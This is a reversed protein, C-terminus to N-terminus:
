YAEVADADKGPQVLAGSSHDTNFNLKIALNSTVAKNKEKRVAKIIFMRFDFLWSEQNEAVFVRGRALTQHRIYTLDSANQFGSYKEIVLCIILFTGTATACPLSEPLHSTPLPRGTQKVWGKNQILRNKQVKHQFLYFGTKRYIKGEKLTM